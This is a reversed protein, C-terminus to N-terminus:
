VDAFQFHNKSLNAFLHPHEEDDYSLVSNIKSITTIIGQSKLIVLRHLFYLCSGKQIYCSITRVLISELKRTM